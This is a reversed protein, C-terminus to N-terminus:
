EEGEDGKTKPRPKDYPPVGLNSGYDGTQHEWDPDWAKTKPADTLEDAEPYDTSATRCRRALGHDGRRHLEAAISQFLRRM